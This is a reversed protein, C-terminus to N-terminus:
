DVLQEVGQVRLAFCAVAGRFCESETKSHVSTFQQDTVLPASPVSTGFVWKERLGARVHDDLEHRSIRRTVLLLHDQVRDALREFLELGTRRVTNLGKITFGGTMM